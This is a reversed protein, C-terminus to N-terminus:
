HDRNKLGFGFRQFINLKKKAPEGNEFFTMFNKLKLFEFTEKVTNEDESCIGKVLIDNEIVTKVSHLIVRYDDMKNKRETEDSYFVKSPQTIITNLCPYKPLNFRCTSDFKKCCTTHNDGVIDRKTLLQLSCSIFEDAFSEMEELETRDLIEYNKIKKFLKQVSQINIHKLEEDEMM